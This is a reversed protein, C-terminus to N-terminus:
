VSRVPTALGPYLESLPGSLAARLRRAVDDVPVEHECAEGADLTAAEDFPRLLLRDTTVIFITAM